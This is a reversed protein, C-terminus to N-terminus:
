AATAHVEASMFGESDGIVPTVIYYKTTGSEQEDDYSTFDSSIEIPSAANDAQPSRTAAASSRYIRYSTADAVAGWSLSIKRIGGTATVVPKTLANTVENALLGVTGHATNLGVGNWYRTGPTPYASSFIVNGSISAGPQSTEATFQNVGAREGELFEYDTAVGSILRMVLSVTGAGLDDIGTRITPVPGTERTVGTATRILNAPKMVALIRDIQDRQTPTLPGGAAPAPSTQGADTQSRVSTGAKVVFRRVRRSGLRFPVHPPILSSSGASLAGHYSGGSGNLRSGLGGDLSLFESPMGLFFRIATQVGLATGKLKYLEVLSGALRRKETVTLPRLFDFPNGLDQLMLDLFNEPALDCDLIEIWRDVDNVLLNLPEQICSIFNALEGDADDKKNIAPIHNWLSFDREPPFDLTKSAFPVLNVVGDNAIGTMGVVKISYVVGPTLEQDFVVTVGAWGMGSSVYGTVTQPGPEYAPASSALASWEASLPTVLDASDAASGGFGFLVRVTSLDLATASLLYSASM